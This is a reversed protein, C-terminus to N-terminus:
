WRRTAHDERRPGDRLARGGRALRRDGRRDDAREVPIPVFRRSLSATTTSPRACATRRRSARHRPGRRPVLAVGFLEAAGGTGDDALSASIRCSWSSRAARTASRTSLARMREELQGRLKAGAVMAGSRSRSSAGSRCCRRCTARPWACRWAASSRPQPRRRARRRPAPQERPPPRAGAPHTAARRRPRGGPRVERAGGPPDPRARLARASRRGREPQQEERQREDKSSFSAGSAASRLIPASLGVRRLVRRVPGTPRRRRRSWAPARRLGQRRRRARAEGEARGLLDLMRPSLYSVADRNKPLKGSRRSPRSWCTPRTWAPAGSPRRCRRPAKWWGTSFTSRSSRAHQHARRRAGPGCAILQRADKEYAELRLTLKSM